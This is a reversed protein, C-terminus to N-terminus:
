STIFEKILTACEEANHEHTDVEIDHRLFIDVERFQSRALGIVRDGRALERRELEEVPCKVAVYVVSFSEFLPKFVQPGHEHAITDAIVKNGCGVLAAISRYFGEFLKPAADSCLEQDGLKSEPFMSGFADLPVHLYAAELQRQLAKALTTKGSSSAGFLFIIDPTQM